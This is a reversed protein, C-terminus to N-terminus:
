KIDKLAALIDKYNPEKEIHAVVQKYAVKGKTDVIYVTRAFFKELFKPSAIVSGYKKANSAGKYDSLTNVNKVDSAKCFRSFAFPTDKSIINIEVNDMKAVQKNFYVTELACTDTDISPVFAIIQVKDKAGGVTVEKLDNSVVVFKPADDGIKLGQNNTVVKHELFMTNMGKSNYCGTVSLTVLLALFISRSLSKM